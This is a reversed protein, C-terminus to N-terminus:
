SESVSELTRDIDRLLTRIYSLESLLRKLEGLLDEDPGLENRDWAAFNEGLTSLRKEREKEVDAKHQQVHDILEDTGRERVHELLEQIELVLMMLDGPVRNNERGLEEGNFELWWKGREVPDKLVQYAKNVNATRSIAAIRDAVPASQHRDPHYRRSLEYYRRSLADQDVVLRRPVGLVQFHDSSDPDHLPEEVANETRNTHTAMDDSRSPLAM